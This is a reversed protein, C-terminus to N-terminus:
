IKIMPLRMQLLVPLVMMLALIFVDGKDAVEAVTLNAEALNKKCYYIGNLPLKVM